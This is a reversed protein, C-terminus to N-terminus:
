DRDDKTRRLILLQGDEVTNPAPAATPGHAQVDFLWSGSGFLSATDIIGSTEWVGPGVAVGDRGPPTLTVVRTASEADIGSSGALDFRWIAGDRGKAAMVARTESTGDEQVMLHRSSVDINDPSLATDGGEAIVQDANVEVTLRAPRTPDHRDLDMRYIRGLENVGAAGGTTVWFFQDRNRTNFAGDEPRAFAMAGAADAAAELQVATMENAKPIEAWRGTITGEQFQAESTIRANRAVFVYLRGGVLGNRELVTAGRSRDKTGVYMWMQSNDAARDLTSPGDEMGMIVTQDGTGRQVLTNEWSFRGLSTLGHAEGDFIAVSLGGKGDFTGTSGDEENAFYIPRDFGEAQGALSGSCFRAFARTSNAVTAAPGVLTDDLYTQDYARDGSIVNGRADMVLRSVIAGRNLPEGLVPESTATARLEHNMYVIRTGRPGRHAGLGDPIGVMQFTKGPEGTVPVTDGVSMVKVTEYEAVVSEAYDKVPAFAAVATAAIAVTIGAAGAIGLRRAVKNRNRV